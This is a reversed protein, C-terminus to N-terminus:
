QALGPYWSRLRVDIGLDHGVLKKFTLNDQINLEMSSYYHYPYVIKPKFERVASAAQNIDMTFPLNMCIFAADINKLARMEPVDENDGSIYIRKGGLTLVYSNDRGKPHFTLRDPTINYSPMAEVPIGHVTKTEGNKMVSTLSKLSDPMADFANQPALIVTNPGKISNLANTDYHDPHIHTIVVLDAAGVPQFPAVLGSPDSYILKEGWQFVLTGHHMPQVVVDQNFYVVPTVTKTTLNLKLLGAQLTNGFLLPSAFNCVYLTNQDGSSSFAVSSPIHLLGGEAVTSFKGDPTVRVIRSQSNVAVYFTGNVDTTMGDAGVMSADKVLVSAPGAGGDEADIPIQVIGGLTTNLVNVIGKATNIAIGNVGPGPSFPFPVVPTQPLLLSDKKWLKANGSQDVKWIIGKPTDTVYLNGRQDFALDNLGGSAPIASFLSATGDPTIKWVGTRAADSRHVAFLNGISDFKLGLVAGPGPLQAFDSAVGEPTIKRIKKLTVFALYINGKSDIAMSEPTEAQGTTLHDGTLANTAAQVARYFRSNLWPATSDTRRVPAGNAAAVTLWYNWRHLDDSVQLDYKDTGPARFIILNEKNDLRQVREMKPVQQAGVSATLAAWLVLGFVQRCPTNRIPIQPYRTGPSKTEKM